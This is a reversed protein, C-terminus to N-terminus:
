IENQKFHTKSIRSQGEYVTGGQFVRQLITAERSYESIFNLRCYNWLVPNHCIYIVSYM